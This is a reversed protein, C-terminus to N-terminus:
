SLLVQLVLFALVYASNVEVIRDIMTKDFYAPLRLYAYASLIERVTLERHM